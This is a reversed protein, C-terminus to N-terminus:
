NTLQNYFYGVTFGVGIGGIAAGAFGLGKKLRELKVQKEVNEITLDKFAGIKKLNGLIGELEKKQAECNDSQLQLEEIKSLQLTITQNNLGDAKKYMPIVTDVIYEYDLVDVLLLKATEIHMHLYVEGTSDKTAVIEKDGVVGRYISQSSSLLPIM